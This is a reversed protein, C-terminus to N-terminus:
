YGGIQPIPILKLFDPTDDASAPTPAPTPAPVPAPIPAPVPAPTPAPVPAPAAAATGFVEALKARTKPGVYGYGLDVSSSVVGHKLQFKQVAKETFSGFYNTEQGSSGVGISAVQTDSESNLFQQLTKVDKGKSGVTLNRSIKAGSVEVTSTTSSTSSPGGLLENVKKLTSPGVFGTGSSLGVPTLIEDKYKEQFRSAAAKTLSGFYGTVLAEPYVGENVFLQQLTKVDEGTSGVTLNRAITGMVSVEKTLEITTVEKSPESTKQGSTGIATASVQETNNSENGAPDVSRVTYYYLTGDVLGVNDVFKEGLVEAVIIKGLDTSTASRYIKTHSFDSTPNKWTLKIDGSGLAVASTGAPVAPPTIDAAAVIAFRTFHDVAATVINDDKNVISSSITKWTGVTEDWFSM